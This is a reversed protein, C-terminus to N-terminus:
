GSCETALDQPQRRLNSGAIIIPVMVGAPGQQITRLQLSLQTYVERHAPRM